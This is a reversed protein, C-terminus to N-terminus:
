GRDTKPMRYYWFNINEGVYKGFLLLINKNFVKDIRVEIDLLRDKHLYIAYEILEILYLENLEDCIKNRILTIRCITTNWDLFLLYNNKSTTFISYNEFLSVIRLNLKNSCERWCTELSISFLLNKRFKCVDNLSHLSIKSFNSGDLVFSVIVRGGLNMVRQISFGSNLIFKFALSNAFDCRTLISNANSIEQLRLLLLRWYLISVRRYQVFNCGHISYGFEEEIIRIFAIISGNSIISYLIDYDYFIRDKLKNVDGEDYVPLLRECHYDKSNRLNDIRRVEFGPIVIQDIKM